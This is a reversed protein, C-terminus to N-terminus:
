LRASLFEFGICTLVAAIPIMGYPTFVQFDGYRAIDFLCRDESDPGFGKLWVSWRQESAVRVNTTTSDLMIMLKPAIDLKEVDIARM